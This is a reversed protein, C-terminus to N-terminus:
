DIIMERGIHIRIIEIIKFIKKTKKGNEEFWAFRLVISKQLLSIKVFDISIHCTMLSEAAV